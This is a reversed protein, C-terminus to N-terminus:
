RARGVGFVLRIPSPICWVGLKRGGIGILWANWSITIVTAVLAVGIASDFQWAVLASLAAAVIAHGAMVYGYIVESGTMSVLYGTPGSLANVLNGILLVWLLTRGDTYEPGFAQLALGSGLVLVLCAAATFMSSVAIGRDVVRQMEPAADRGDASLRSFQPGIVSEVASNGMRGLVAIRQAVAFIGAERPGLIAGVILLYSIELGAGGLQGIFLPRIGARWRPDAAMRGNGAPLIRRVVIAEGIAVVAGALTLALLAAAVSRGVILALVFAIIAFAAPHVLDTFTVGLVHRYSAQLVQKFILMAAVSVILTLGILTTASRDDFIVVSAAMAVAMVVVSGFLTTRLAQRVIGRAGDGDGERELHPLWRVIALQYGRDPLRSLLGGWGRMVVFQGYGTPGLWRSLLAQIVLRFGTGGVNVIVTGIAAARVKAERGTVSKMLRRPATQLNM